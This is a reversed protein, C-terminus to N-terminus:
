EEIAAISVRTSTRGIRCRVRRAHELKKETMGPYHELTLAQVRDSGGMDRVLGIFSAIGGIRPNGKALRELEAGTDFDERQVKIM